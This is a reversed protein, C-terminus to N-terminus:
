AAIPKAFKEVTDNLRAQLPEATENAVKTVLESIKTSETVLRDFNARAFETEVEIVEQLTKCGLLKKANAVGDEVAKQNYTMVEQGFTEIAKAFIAGAALAADLNAKNYTAFDDFKDAAQPFAKGVQERATAIAQDYGKTVADTGGKYAKEATEKSVKVAKEVTEQSAKVAQEVTEQGAKVAAEVQKVADAQTKEGSM